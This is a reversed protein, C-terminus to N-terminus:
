FAVLTITSGEPANGTPRQLRVRDGLARHVNVDFGAQELKKRAADVKMGVVDPVPVRPAGKSVTLEVTSGETVGGRAPNQAVVQGKPHDSDFRESIDIDLGRKRLEEEAKEIAWGRVDPVQIGRSVVVNVESGHRIREGIGPDTRIVDGKAVEASYEHSVQGPTLGAAEIAGNADALTDGSVDPVAVTRPGKSPVLTITGGSRIREGAPPDTAIVHGRPVDDHFRATATVTRFGHQHARSKAAEVTTGAFGSPVETLLLAFGLGGVGLLVALALGGAILTRRLDRQAFSSRRASRRRARPPAPSRPAALTDHADRRVVETAGEDSPDRHTPETTSPLSGRAELAAGLLDNADMPRRTPDRETARAVLVDLASPLEPTLTSPPPVSDNVHKYAVALPTEGDYPQRGTLLEFLLIGAAYVDSRPDAIGHEVQEPAVYGVTGLILGTRTNNSSHVARALGFDAVKVRGDDALLVNEPKVDRHILGAHHAAGLAALVAEMISLAEAPQVRGQERLLDRLTRGSIHEMALFVHGRDRGQDYVNVVNPHSLRAAAKAEGIFRQVLDQDQALGPNMVKVAVTRDLRTDLAVYVTGMGGRAMRSVIRYRGDLVQGVVPDSVVTSM